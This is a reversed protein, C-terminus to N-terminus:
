SMVEWDDALYDERCLTLRNGNDLRIWPTDACNNTYDRGAEGIWIWPGRDRWERRGSADDIWHKRARRMPRERKLADIFTLDDTTM